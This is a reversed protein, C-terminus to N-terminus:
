LLCRVLLFISISKIGRTGCYNSKYFRWSKLEEKERKEQVPEAERRQSNLCVVIADSLSFLLSLFSVSVLFSTLFTFSKCAQTYHRCFLLKQILKEDQRKKTKKKRTRKSTHLLSGIEVGLAKSRFCCFPRRQQVLFICGIFILALLYDAKVFLSCFNGKYQMQRCLLVTHSRKRQMANSSLANITLMLTFLDLCFSRFLQCCPSSLFLDVPLRLRQRTVNARWVHWCYFHWSDDLSDFLLFFSFTLQLSICAKTLRIVKM